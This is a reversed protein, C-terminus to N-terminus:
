RTAPRLQPSQRWDQSALVKWNLDNMTPEDYDFQKKFYARTEKGKWKKQLNEMEKNSHYMKGDRLYAKCFPNTIFNLYKDKKLSTLIAVEDRCRGDSVLFLEGKTSQLLEKLGEINQESRSGTSGKLLDQQWQELTAIMKNWPKEKDSKARTPIESPIPMQITIIGNTVQRFSRMKCNPDLESM